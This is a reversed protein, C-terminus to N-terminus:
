KTAFEKNLYDVIDSSEYLWRTEGKEDIRLCPVKVRGGGALLDAKHQPDNQADRCEINVSLRKMQRRVKVCFPCANFQYLSMKATRSDIETQAVPSRKVGKPTFIANLLLIIRGLIWRVIKM